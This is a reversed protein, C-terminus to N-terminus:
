REDNKLKNDILKWVFRVTLGGLGGVFGLIFAKFLDESFALVGTTFVQGQIWAITCGLKDDYNM